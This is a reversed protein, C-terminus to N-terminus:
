RRKLTVSQLEPRYKGGKFVVQFHTEDIKDENFKVRLVNQVYNKEMRYLDDELEQPMFAVFRSPNMNLGLAQMIDQVSKPKDDIWYIRKMQSLDESVLKAPPNLDKVLKYEKTPGGENVPIALIAGLSRLQSLYEPGNAATFRMHWRLMRKERQTLTAKGAGEGPGTGTGKGKDKGGDKGPGGEGKGPRLGDSLKKRLGVELDALARANPNNSEEIIRYDAPDFKEAWDKKQVQTLEPLKPVNELGPIKVNDEGKEPVDEKLDGIGPNNGSGSKKGGGGGLDLRVPEVPLNRSTKIFLSALWVAFLVLVGGALLHLAISGALSLPAESHPSYRKWFQEEPPILPVDKTPASTASM